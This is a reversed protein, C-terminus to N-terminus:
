KGAGSDALDIQRTKVVLAFQQAKQALLVQGAIKGKGCANEGKLPFIFVWGAHKCAFAIGEAGVAAELCHARAHGRM